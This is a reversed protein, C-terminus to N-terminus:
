FPIVKLLADARAQAPQEVATVQLVHCQLTSLLTQLAVPQDQGCATVPESLYEFSDVVVVISVWHNHEPVGRGPVHLEQQVKHVVPHDIHLLLM